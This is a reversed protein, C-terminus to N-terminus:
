QQQPNAQQPMMVMVMGQQPSQQYQHQPPVLGMPWQGMPMNQVYMPQQQQYAPQQMMVQDQMMWPVQVYQMPQQQQQHYPMPTTPVGYRQLPPPPLPPLPTLGLKPKAMFTSKEPAVQVETGSILERCVHVKPCQKGIRCTGDQFDQCLTDLPITRSKISLDLDRPIDEIGATWGIRDVTFLQAGVTFTMAKVSKNEEIIERTFYDNHTACCPLTEPGLARTANLYAGQVHIDLCRFGFSCGCGMSSHNCLRCVTFVRPPMRPNYYEQKGRSSAVLFAPVSLVRHRPNGTDHLCM